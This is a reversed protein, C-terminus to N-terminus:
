ELDLLHFLDSGNLPMVFGKVKQNMARAANLHFLPIWPIEKRFISQAKMYLVARDKQGPKRKASQILSDFPKFCWRARNSGAKVGSCGLLVNLFNDPDGNDGIWAM